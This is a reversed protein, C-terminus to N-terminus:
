KGFGSLHRPNTSLDAPGDIGLGLADVASTVSPRKRNALSEIAERLLESRSVNRQRALESLAEDLSIPLKFSVTRMPPPM